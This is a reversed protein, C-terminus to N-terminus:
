RRHLVLLARDDHSTGIRSLLRRAGDHVGSDIMHEAEAVLKDIGRVYDQSPSEVLGDTYLLVADGSCVSGTAPAFQADDILGLAPGESPLSLWSRTGAVWQLVPPHGATRVEFDGSELDIVIHVATAFGEIWEQRLLYTNAARMFEDPPLAGLLGGFAGSLQLARTGASLGKGSVDVMVVELKEAGPTRASVMFDGAFQAGDASRLASQAYWSDPLPPLEGQALLRDRLDIIMSEGLSGPLGTEARASMTLLMGAIVALVLVVVNRETSTGESSVLVGVCCAQVAVSAAFPWFQLTVSAILMPIVFIILPFLGSKYLAGATVVLNVACLIALVLLQRGASAAVSRQITTRVASPRAWLVTRAPYAAM